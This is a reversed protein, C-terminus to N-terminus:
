GNRAEKGTRTAQQARLADVWGCFAALIPQVNQDDAWGAFGIFGDTNITVAEREVFYCSACTIRAHAGIPHPTVKKAAHARFDELLGSARLAADIRNRLARLSTDTIDAVLLGSRAWHDRAEKRTMM